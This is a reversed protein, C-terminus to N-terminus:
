LSCGISLPEVNTPTPTQKRPSPRDTPPPAPARLMLKLSLARCLHFKANGRQTPRSRSFKAPHMLCLCVGMQIRLLLSRRSNVVFGTGSGSRTRPMESAGFAQFSILEVCVSTDLCSRQFSTYRQWVGLAVCPFVEFKTQASGGSCCLIKTVARNEFISQIHKTM